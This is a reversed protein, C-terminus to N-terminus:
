LPKEFIAEVLKQAIETHNEGSIRGHDISKYSEWSFISWDTFNSYRTISGHALIKNEKNLVTYTNNNWFWGSWKKFNIEKVNIM